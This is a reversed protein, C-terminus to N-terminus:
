RSMLSTAERILRDWQFAPGPDVKNTQVHYHGLIGQYSRFAEDPLKKPILNGDSDKPFDCKIKPFVTCLTATLKALTEYQQPTLDYQVLNQGQVAGEVPDNRDPRIPSPPNRIGSKELGGPITMITKGTADKAYWTEFPNKGTKPYAGMNAIEIGISRNNAITAHWAAEKLDLTQYLTGDVDLMFHVSLGRADHLVQFCRKSTGCVDFHIVFQDVVDRLEDISWGGGRVKEVMEPSLGKTRAGYRNPTKVGGAKETEKWNAKELPAFRRDVRYADYGGPDTWLVVPAGTHFLQGCVMIEDGKRALPTGPKVPTGTDAACIAVLGLTVTLSVALRKGITNKM